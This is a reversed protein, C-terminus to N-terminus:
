KLLVIKQVDTFDGARMRYWYAGSAANQANWIVSHQGAPKQEDILTVIEQGLANYVKITVRSERPLDFRIETEPNFPNPYGPYLKFNKPLDVFVLNVPTSLSSTAYGIQWRGSRDRGSYWMKFVDNDVLVSLMGLTYSDWANGSGFSIIPNGIYRTWDIGNQSTAVGIQYANADPAGFYFMYYTSGVVIVRPDTVLFSEWNNTFSPTLLPNASHKTWTIGDPSTAYGISASPLGNGSYYMQYIGRHDRFVNPSHVADDDWSGAPGPSMVPNGSFKTWNIGDRSTALGISGRGSSTFGGYYFRYISDVKIVTGGWTFGDDFSGPPGPELIPNGQFTYWHVGDVSIASNINFAYDRGVYWMKYMKDELLVAPMWAFSYDYSCIGPSVVPHPHKYWVFQSLASLPLSLLLLAFLQIVRTRM